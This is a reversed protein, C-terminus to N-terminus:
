TGVSYPVLENASSETVLSLSAAELVFRHHALPMGGHDVLDNNNVMYGRISGCDCTVHKLCETKLRILESHLDVAEARLQDNDIQLEQARDQLAVEQMKRKEQFRKASRRNRELVLQRPTEKKEPTDVESALSKERRISTERGEEDEDCINPEPTYETKMVEATQLCATSYNHWEFFEQDCIM